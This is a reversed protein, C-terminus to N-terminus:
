TKVSRYLEVLRQVARIGQEVAAQEASVTKELPSLKPVSISLAVSKGVAGAEVDPPLVDKFPALVQDVEAAAGAIFLKAHGATLQHTVTVQKPLGDPRFQVWTSGAPRPKAEQVRCEPAVASALRCYDRVYATMAESIDAVYGRRNKQIAELLVQGKFAYRRDRTRRSVFFSLIEEYTVQADYGDTQNGASLYQKPAVVCTVFTDWDQSQLGKEGRLRYRAAQQPQAVADIKNEILVAVRGDDENRFLFLLDSEGLASDTVSHWTGVAERFVARGFLRSAFWDGFESNVTLEEVLLLDIDREAVSALFKTEITV